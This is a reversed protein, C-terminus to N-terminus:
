LQLVSLPPPTVCPTHCHPPPSFISPEKYPGVTYSTYDLITVGISSLGLFRVPSQTAANDWYGYYPEDPDNTGAFWWVDCSQGRLPATGNYATNRLWDPTPMALGAEFLCCRDSEIPFDPSIFYTKALKTFL